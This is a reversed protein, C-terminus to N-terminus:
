PMAQVQDPPPAAITVAENWKTFTAVLHPTGLDGLHLTADIGSLRTSAQEVHIGVADRGDWIADVDLAEARPHDRGVFPPPTQPMPQYLIGTPM